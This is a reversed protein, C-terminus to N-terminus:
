LATAISASQKGEHTEEGRIAGEGDEKQRKRKRESMKKDYGKEGETEKNGRQAAEAAMMM